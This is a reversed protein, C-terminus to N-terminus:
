KSHELSRLLQTAKKHGQKAAKTLWTRAHKQNRRVGEGDLYAQGLNYQARSEGKRAAKRLWKIGELLDPKTGLGELYAVGLSCQAKTDGLQAARKYLSFAKTKNVEVGEGKEYCLALNWLGEVDKASAAREYWFVAAHLDTEVGLGLQYSYGVLNQCHPDGAEAGVLLYRLAKKYSKRRGAGYFFQQGIESSQVQQETVMHLEKNLAATLTNSIVAGSYIM